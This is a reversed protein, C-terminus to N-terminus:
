ILPRKNNTCIIGKDYINITIGLIVVEAVHINCM